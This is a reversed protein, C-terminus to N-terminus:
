NLARLSENTKAFPQDTANICNCGTEPFAPKLTAKLALLSGGPVGSETGRRNEKRLAKTWM